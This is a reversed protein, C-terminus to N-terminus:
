GRAVVLKIPMGPVAAVGAAPVQDVVLGAKGENTRAIRARLKLERLRANARSLTLGEVLPVVGYVPRAVWLTLEDYSSLTGRAPRQRIVVGVRQRPLAPRYVIRPTLPQAAVRERAAAVPQGVVRPVDVENPKCQATAGPTSGSFFWVEKVNRCLGNDRKLGARQVVALPTAYESPPPEFEEPEAQLHKLAGEMFTRWILAPFTGGAVAEGHYDTIMPRLKEPYGVWVAVALQPTYGVFWADGYNETTGTKGAVPRGDALAARRGTGQEVVEQLLATVWRASRETLVRRPRGLNRSVIKGDKNRIEDIARPADGLLSTDIRFGGNAFASYARALELPNVAQAGLGLSLYPALKSHVGLRRATRAVATPGLLQTLQVYVSNDSHITATELDAEGLYADEYNSVPYVRGGELPIALPESSFSTEPSIGLQLATALVFPKFSSGPQREAQVALNFQSERYNGGIMSLVNGTEPDIAVLAADPGDPETLWKSIARRGLEQLRLDITTRVRLGSGFVKRPYKFRDLLQDKVYNTFFPAPGQNAPLTVAKPLPARAAARRESETITGSDQMARLVAARRLRAARPNAIPDYSAPDAPIGALLSAEALTMSKAGHRFYRTAAQQVGYAGNGFYITNLYATLIRDKSWQQTLQWALAAERVKRGISRENGIYTNKVYQQTITSGGEVVRKQRIDAWLARGIGRVDIGNHEWFRRDEIAVIAQKMVPAIEDSSVLVRSESGRLVALVTRDDSAYVYGNVEEDRHAAPDLSPVESAVASILGFTFSVLGLVALVSLLAFLRLKRIRRRRPRPASRPRRRLPV